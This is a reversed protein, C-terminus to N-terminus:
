KTQQEGSDIHNKLPTDSSLWIALVGGIYAAVLKPHLRAFLPFFQPHCLASAQARSRTNFNALTKQLRAAQQQQPAHRPLACSRNHARATQTTHTSTTIPHTAHQPTFSSFHHPQKNKLPHHTKPSPHCLPAHPCFVCTHPPAIALVRGFLFCLVKNKQTGTKKISLHSSTIRPLTAVSSFAKKMLRQV